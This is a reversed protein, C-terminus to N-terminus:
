TGEIEKFSRAIVEAIAKRRASAEGPNVKQQVTQGPVRSSDAAGAAPDRRCDM